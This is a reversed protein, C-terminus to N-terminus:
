GERLRVRSGVERPDRGDRFSPAVAIPNPAVLDEDGPDLLAVEHHEDRARCRMSVARLPRFPQAEEEDVEPLRLPDLAGPDACHEVALRVLQEQVVDLDGGLVQDALSTWPPYPIARSM